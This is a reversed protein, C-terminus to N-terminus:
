RDDALSAYVPPIYTIDSTKYSISKVLDASFGYSIAYQIAYKYYSIDSGSLCHYIGNLKNQVLLNIKFIVDQIDVPAFNMDKYATIEKGKSLLKKWQLFLPLESYVVKSLRLVGYRPLKSVLCELEDKQRGYENIPSKKDDIKRFPIQGDFVQNSSIFLVFAGSKSLLEALKYAHIVNIKRTLSSNNECENLKSIAACMVAVDYKCPLDFAEDNELDVFPRSDSVLSKRRTSTHFKIGKREWCEGLKKGILSDGGVILYM